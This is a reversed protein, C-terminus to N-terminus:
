ALAVLEVDAERAFREDFTRVPLAGTQQALELILYDSFDAPGHEFREV